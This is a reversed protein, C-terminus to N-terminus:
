GRRKRRGRRCSLFIRWEWWGRTSYWGTSSSRLKKVIENWEYETFTVRM